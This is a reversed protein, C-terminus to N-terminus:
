KFLSGMPALRSGIGNLTGGAAAGALAQLSEAPAGIAAAVKNNLQDLEGTLQQLEAAVTQKGEDMLKSAQSAALGRVANDMAEAVAPGATSWVKWKPDDLNGSLTVTTVMRPTQALQKALSEELQSDQIVGGFSAKLHPTVRVNQQVLQMDGALEEGTIQLSVSLAATSPDVTLGLKEADGLALRPIAMAPCDIVLEDTPVDGCRNLKARVEIPAAGSTTLCLRMPEGLVRPQTTFDSLVGSFELPRGALRTAGSVKLSRVLLDPTQKVGPLLVDVGRSRGEGADGSTPALKRAWRLWAVLESVPGAIQDGLLYTSVSEADINKVNLKERIMAEDHQRAVAVAERDAKVQAPLMALRQKIEALEAKFRTIEKPVGQLFEVNRLPNSRAEKVKATFSKIETQLQKARQELSSYEVPWKQRLEKALRVSELQMDATFRDQVGSLWQETAEATILNPLAFGGAADEDQESEPLAGSTERPTGFRLGALEGESVWAKKRLAAASDFDLTLREAEILNTMPDRPDAVAIGTFEANTRLLSASGGAIEVKAGVAAQGSQVAALRLAYAAGYESFLALLLLLVVRPVIYGWRFIRM